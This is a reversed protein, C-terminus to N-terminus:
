ERKIEQEFLGTLLNLIQLVFTKISFAGRGGGMKFKELSEDLCFEDTKTAGGM